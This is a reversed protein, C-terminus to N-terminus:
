TFLSAAAALGLTGVVILYIAVVYNLLSPRIMIGAVLAVVSELVPSTM